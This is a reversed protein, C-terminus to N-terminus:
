VHGGSRSWKPLGEEELTGDGSSDSETSASVVLRDLHGMLVQATHEPCQWDHSRVQGTPEPAIQRAHRHCEM